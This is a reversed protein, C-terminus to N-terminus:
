KVEVKKVKGDEFHTVRQRPTNDEARQENIAAARTLPGRTKYNPLNRARALAIGLRTKVRPLGLIHNAVIAAGALPLVSANGSVAYATGGTVAATGNLLNIINNNEVRGISNGIAEKLQILEKSNQNLERLEPFQGYISENIAHSIAKYTEKQAPSYDKGFSNGAKKQARQKVKHAYSPAMEEPHNEILDEMIRSTQRMPTSPDPDFMTEQSTYDLVSDVIDEAKIKTGSADADNLAAGVKRASNNLEERLAEAGRGGFLGRDRAFLKNSVKQVMDKPVPLIRHEYAAKFAESRAADDLTTSPKVASMYMKRPLGSGGVARLPTAVVQRAVNLPDAVESVTKAMAGVKALRPLRAVAGAGRAVAGAGGILATVDGLIGVPDEALAQKFGDMSGYRDKYFKSLAAFAARDDADAAFTPDMARGAGKAIHYVGKLTDIPHIMANGLDAAMNVFSDPINKVSEVGVQGWSMPEPQAPQQPQSNQGQGQGFRQIYAGIEPEPVGAQVMRKVNERLDSM